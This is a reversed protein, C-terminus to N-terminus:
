GMVKGPVIAAFRSQGSANEAHARRNSNGQREM